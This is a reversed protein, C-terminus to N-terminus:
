LLLYNQHYSQPHATVCFVECTRPLFSSPQKSKYKHEIISNMAELLARLLDHNSDNALLFSPSSMSTFLQLLKSSAAASLNEIYAAINNIVALLAPYVATLKGQSTTIITYISHLLYDAYTGNFSAVRITAPLTEQAEFRKNLGTGFNVEVSLTQLLFVCMRVVGQKSTDLKYELIYFLLLIVFDHSRDTDIIFSRFRKNCQTIEWFLMIMESACKTSAQSGPLYSSHALMPQNLVRTMGDVIFQFDQPRHLRGLSHVYDTLM